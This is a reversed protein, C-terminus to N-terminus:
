RLSRVLGAVRALEALSADDFAEGYRRVRGQGDVLVFRTSHLIPEKPDPQGPELALRFGERILGHVKEPPGTLFSWRPDVAGQERAYAALREPTDYEPDVSISALRVGPPLLTALKKMRQTLLPCQGGCRTFVFDVIWPEGQWTARSVEAGNQDLLEFEPLTAIPEGLSTRLQRERVTSVLVSVFAAALVVAALIKSVTRQSV